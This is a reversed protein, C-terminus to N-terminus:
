MTCRAVRRRKQTETHSRSAIGKIWVVVRPDVGSNEIKELLRGHPVVDFAKSFGVVIADVTVDIDLSDSINQRVTIVQSECSYGPRFGYKGENVWDNVEWVQRLYSAIVREM